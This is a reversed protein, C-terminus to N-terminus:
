SVPWTLSRRRQKVREKVRGEKREDSREGPPTSNIQIPLHKKKVISFKIILAM